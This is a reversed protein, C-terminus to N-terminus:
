TGIGLWVYSAKVASVDTFVVQYRTTSHPSYGRFLSLIRQSYDRSREFGERPVLLLRSTKVVEMLKARCFMEAWFALYPQRTKPLHAIFCYLLAIFHASLIPVFFWVRNVCLGKIILLKTM